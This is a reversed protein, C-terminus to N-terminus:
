DFLTNKYHALYSIITEQLYHSAYHLTLVDSLKLYYTAIFVMFPTTRVSCQERYITNKM